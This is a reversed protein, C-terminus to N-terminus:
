QQDGIEYERVAAELRHVAADDSANIENVLFAAVDPDIILGLCVDDDAPEDRWQFYLNRPNKRGQRLKM